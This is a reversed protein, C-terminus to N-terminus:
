TCLETYSQKMLALQGVAIFLLVGLLTALVSKGASRRQHKWIYRLVFRLSGKARVGRVPKSIGTVAAEEVFAGSHTPQPALSDSSATMTASVAESRRQTKFRQNKRGRARRNGNDQLLALPSLAAVRRLLIFAILLTLLLEGAICAIVAGAPISTSVSYEKLASLTNSRAITQVTYIWAAGSGALIAAVAVTMLPLILARAATKKTTGLARMVAYEKKKRSIFLYVVFWTAAAIAASLVTIKILSLRRAEEFGRAIDPWGGDSFILRLGMEEFQPASQELFTPIDWASEVKYSFESPSFVHGSLQNKDVPLLSKTVFITNVSYSWNPKKSQQSLGDIDSYIGAIELTVTKEAPKYREPTVALAGLGKYQEFLNAGLTLTVSDGTNLNHAETVERSVVCVSGSDEKKLARGDLISMSGEAFRLISSMDETYVMDFTHADANTIRVLERLASFAETDLYNDPQGAIPWVADCWYDSLHDSLYFSFKYREDYSTQVLPNFRLVFAYRSGLTMDKVYETDYIYDHTHMLDLRQSVGGINCWDDEAYTLPDAYVTLTENEIAWAPNGALLTCDNLILRNFGLDVSGIAEPDGYQVKTLTGEIICRASFNYFYTGDDLRL